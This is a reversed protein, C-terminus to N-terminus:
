RRGRRDPCPAASPPPQGGAPSRGSRSSPSRRVCRRDRRASPSSAIVPARARNVPSGTQRGPLGAGRRGPRRRARDCHALPRYGPGARHSSTAPDAGPVAHVFGLYASDPLPGLRPDQRRMLEHREKILAAFAVYADRRRRRAEAGAGNTEILFARACAPEADLTGLYAHLTTTIFVQWDTAALTVAALRALLAQAFADYAALFCEEKDSFHEYFRNPAVRARRVAETITLNAYGNEAVLETVAALIRRRQSAAVEERTLTHRGHPLAAVTGFISGAPPRRPIPSTMPNVQVAPILYSISILPCIRHGAEMRGPQARESPAFGMSSIDHRALNAAARAKM